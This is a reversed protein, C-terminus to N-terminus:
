FGFGIDCDNDCCRALDELEERCDNFDVEYDDENECEAQDLLCTFYADLEPSCEERAVDEEIERAADQCDEYEKNSCGECDCAETCLQSAPSGCSIMVPALLLALSCALVRRM